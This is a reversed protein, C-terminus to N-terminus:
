TPYTSMEKLNVLSPVVIDLCEPMTQRWQFSTRFATSNLNYNGKYIIFDNVVLCDCVMDVTNNGMYVFLDDKNQIGCYSM